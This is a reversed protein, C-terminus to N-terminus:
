QDDRRETRDSSDSSEEVTERSDRTLVTMATEVSGVKVATHITTAKQRNDSCNRDSSDRSDVTVMTVVM